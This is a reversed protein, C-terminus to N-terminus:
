AYTSVIGNRFNCLMFCVFFIESSLKTETSTLSETLIKYTKGLGIIREVHVRKRSIKRDKIATENSIRNQKKFLTPINIHVDHPAFIDQVNFGKDAM